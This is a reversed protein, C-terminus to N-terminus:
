FRGVAPDVRDRSRHRKAPLTWCFLLHRRCVWMRCACMFPRVSVLAMVRRHSNYSWLFLRLCERLSLTLHNRIAAKNTGKRKLRWIIINEKVPASKLSKAGLGAWPSQRLSVLVADHCIGVTFIFDNQLSRPSLAATPSQQLAAISVLYQICVVYTFDIPNNM